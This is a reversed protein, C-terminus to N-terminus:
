DEVYEDIMEWQYWPIWTPHEFAGQRLVIWRKTGTVLQHNHYIWGGVVVAM